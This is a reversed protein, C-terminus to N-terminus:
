KKNAIVRRQAVYADRASQNRDFILQQAPTLINRINAMLQVHASQIAEKNAAGRLDGGTQRTRNNQAVFFEGFQRDLQRIQTAQQPTLTIGTFPGPPRTLGFRDVGQEQRQGALLTQQEPLAQAVLSRSVVILFALGYRIIGKV